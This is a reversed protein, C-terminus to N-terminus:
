KRDAARMQRVLKGAWARGPDGGWLLWAIYGNSPNSPNSWGPKRDKQHRNFYNYMRKATSPSVHLGKALTAARTIGSGIGLKGAEQSSIGGRGFKKRLELGRKAAKRVTKPPKFDIHSYKKKM